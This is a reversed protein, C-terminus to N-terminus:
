IQKFYSLFEVELHRFFLYPFSAFIQIMNWGHILFKKGVVSSIEIKQLLVHCTRFNGSMEAFYISLPSSSLTVAVMVHNWPLMSYAFKGSYM